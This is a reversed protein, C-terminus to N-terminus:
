ATSARCKPAQIALLKILHLGYPTRVPASVEEKKLAYLADEFAPEYVGRGAFGLDGGNAASGPDQSFEKALAAFAEGKDLRQKIEDIKAKAQEETQQDNIEVLIHAADRQESLNGIEKDYQAKLDDESVEVQSFFAEKKLEVYELVVQEPSMFQGKHEDYYAQIEDDSVTVAKPDAKFTLTAFDRTQKELRAFARIEEDTVFGSGALGARLQGVLMEQELMQRFQLRTYSM